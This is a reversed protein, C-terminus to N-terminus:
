ADNDSDEDSESDSNSEIDPDLDSESDRDSESDTEFFKSELLAKMRKIHKQTKKHKNLRGLTVNCGCECIKRESIKLLAAERTKAYYQENYIKVYAPQKSNTIKKIKVEEM